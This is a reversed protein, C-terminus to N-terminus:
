WYLSLIDLYAGSSSTLCLQPFTHKIARIPINIKLNLSNGFKGIQRKAFDADALGVNKAYATRGYRLCWLSVGAAASMKNWFSWKQQLVSDSHNAQHLGPAPVLPFGAATHQYVILCMTQRPWARRTIAKQYAGYVGSCWRCLLKARQAQLINMVKKTHALTKRRRQFPNQARKKRRLCLAQSEGQSSCVVAKLKLTQKFTNKKEKKQQQLAVRHNM